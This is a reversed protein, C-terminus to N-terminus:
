TAGAYISRPTVVPQEYTKRHSAALNEKLPVPVLVLVLLSENVRWCVRLKPAAPAAANTIRALTRVESRTCPIVPNNYTRTVTWLYPVVANSMNPDEWYNFIPFLM